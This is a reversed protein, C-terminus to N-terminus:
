SNKAQLPLEAYDPRIHLPHSGPHRLHLVPLLQAPVTRWQRGKHFQCLAYRLHIRNYRVSQYSPFGQRSGQRQSGTRQLRCLQFDCNHAHLIRCQSHLPHLLPQFHFRSDKCISRGRLLRSEDCLTRYCDHISRCTGPMSLADEPCPGMQRGSHGDSRAHLHVCLRPNRLIALDASWTRSQRSFKGNKM